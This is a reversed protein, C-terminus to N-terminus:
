AAPNPRAQRLAWALDDRQQCEVLAFRQRQVFDLLAVRVAEEESGFWGSRVAQEVERALADPVDVELRKM